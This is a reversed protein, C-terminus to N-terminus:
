GGVFDLSKEAMEALSQGPFMPLLQEVGGLFSRLPWSGHKVMQRATVKGIGDGVPKLGVADNTGPVEGGGEDIGSQIGDPQGFQGGLKGRRAMRISETPQFRAQVEFLMRM